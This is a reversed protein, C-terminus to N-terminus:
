CRECVVMVDRLAVEKCKMKVEEILRRKKLIRGHFEQLM